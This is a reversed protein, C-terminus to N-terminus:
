FGLTLLYVGRFTAVALQQSYANFSLGSILLGQPVGGPISSINWWETGDPSSFVGANCAVFVEGTAPNIAVDRCIADALGVLNWHQGSDSTKYIGKDAAIYAINDHNPDVAVAKIGANTPPPQQPNAWHAGDNLNADTTIYVTNSTTVAYIVKSNSPAETAAIVVVAPTASPNPPLPGPGIRNWTPPSPSSTANLTRAVTQCSAILHTPASPNMSFVPFFGCYSDSALQPPTIQTVYPTSPTASPSPRMERWFGQDQPRTAYLTFYAKTSDGPDILNHFSDGGIIAHWASGWPMLPASFEVGADQTGAIMTGDQSLEVDYLWVGALNQNLSTWHQGHDTSTVIGGDNGTYVVGPHDSSFVTIRQDVHVNPDDIKTWASGSNATRFLAPTGGLIIRPDSPDVAFEGLGINNCGPPLCPPPCPNACVYSDSGCPCPTPIQVWTGPGTGPLYKYLNRSGSVGGLAYLISNVFRLETLWCTQHNADCASLSHLSWHGGSDTSTWVGDDDAIHLTSPNTAPDIVLDHVGNYGYPIPPPNVVTWSAGGNISKRLGSNNSLGTAVYLTQGTTDRADVAVARVFMEQFGGSNAWTAGSDTSRFLGVEFAPNRDMGTGVYVRNAHNPDVTICSIAQSSWTDSLYQWHSGGDTSKALGGFSGTYIVDKPQGPALALASVRASTPSGGDALIPPPIPFTWYTPPGFPGGKVLPRVPLARAAAMGKAYDAPSVSGIGLFRQMWEQRMRIVVPDNENEPWSVAETIQAASSVHDADNSGAQKSRRNQALASYGVVSLAGLCLLGIFVSRLITIKKFRTLFKM